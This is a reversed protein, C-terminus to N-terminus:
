RRGRSQSPGQGDRRRSRVGFAVLACWAPALTGGACSCGGAAVAFSSPFVFLERGDQAVVDYIGPALTGPVTCQVAAASLVQVGACQAPGVRFSTAARFGEGTITVLVDEGASGGTPNISTIVLGGPPPGDGEGEGEGGDGEGEGEGVGVDNFVCAASTASSPTDVVARIIWDGRVGFLAVSEWGNSYIANRQAAGTPSDDNAVSPLNDHGFLLAIWVAGDNVTFPADLLAENIGETSSLLTIEQGYLETGPFGPSSNVASTGDDDFIRLEVIRGDGTTAGSPDGFLLHIAQITFPYGDPPASLKVAAGEGAAFGGQFTANGGAAFSDNCLTAEAARAGVACTLASMFLLFRRM